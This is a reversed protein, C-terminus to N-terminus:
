YKSAVALFIGVIEYLLNSELEIYWSGIRMLGERCVGSLQVLVARVRASPSPTVKGLVTVGCV